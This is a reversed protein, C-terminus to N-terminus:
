SICMCVAGCILSDLCRAVVRESYMGYNGGGVDNNVRV